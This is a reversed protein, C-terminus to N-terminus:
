VILDIARMLGTREQFSLAASTTAGITEQNIEATSPPAKPEPNMRGGRSEQFSGLNQEIFVSFSELSFGESEIIKQISLQNAELINKTNPNEAWLTAKIHEKERQIEMYISGLQPPDLTLRFQEERNNLSWILKQGIQEYIELKQTQGLGPARERGIEGSSNVSLPHDAQKAFFGSIEEGQHSEAKSLDTSKTDVAIPNGGKMLFEGNFNALEGKASPKWDVLINGSNEPRYSFRKDWDSGQTKELPPSNAQGHSSSVNKAFSDGPKFGEGGTFSFSMFEDMPGSPSDKILVGQLCPMAPISKFGELSLFAPVAEGSAKPTQIKCLAENVEKRELPNKGIPLTAPLLALLGPTEGSMTPVSDKEPGKSNKGKGDDAPSTQAHLVKAFEGSPQDPTTSQTGTAPEISLTTLPLAATEM